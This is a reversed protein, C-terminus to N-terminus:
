ARTRRPSTVTHNDESAIAAQVGRRLPRPSSEHLLVGFYYWTGLNTQAEAHGQEAAKRYWAVAEVDDQPVGEGRLYMEGLTTQAGADGQEAAKRYWAAAEAFDQPVGEGNYYMWGLVIQAETNGQEAAPHYPELRFKGVETTARLDALEQTSPEDQAHVPPGLAPLSLAVVAVTARVAHRSM